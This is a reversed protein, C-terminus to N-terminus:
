SKDKNDRMERQIGEIQPKVHKNYCDPCVGHTFEVQSYQSIYNEVQQWYNQDDRIKKCYSCIPLIGKLTKIHELAEQLEAVRETLATQLENIRIGVKLRALLEENDFPKTIYDDAGAELGNILDTRSVLATLMIIYTSKLNNSARIRQCIEIGDLKPMMWDLILIGPPDTTQMAQWTEYGNAASLVDFNWRKLTYELIRRTPLDDEAILIKM